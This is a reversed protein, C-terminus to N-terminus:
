NQGHHAEATGYAALVLTMNDHHLFAGTAPDRAAELQELFQRSLGADDAGVLPHYQTRAAAYDEIPFLDSAGDSMALVSCGPELRVSGIRALATCADGIYATLLNSPQGLLHHPVLLDAVMGDPWVVTLAGDGLTAYHLWEGDFVMVIATTLGGLKKWAFVQRTREIAQPLREIWPSKSDTSLESALVDAATVAAERGGEVGGAGDNLTAISLTDSLQRIQFTDQNEKRMKGTRTAGEIRWPHAATRSVAHGIDSKATKELHPLELQVDMPRDGTNRHRSQTVWQTLLSAFSLATLVILLAPIWIPDTLAPLDPWSIGTQGLPMVDAPLPDPAMVDAPLDPAAPTPHLDCCPIAALATDFGHGALGCSLVTLLALSRVLDRGQGERARLLAAEREDLHQPTLPNRQAMIPPRPQVPGRFNPDRYDFGMATMTRQHAASPDHKRVNTM